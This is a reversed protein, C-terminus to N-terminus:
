SRVHTLRGHKLSFAISASYNPCFVSYPLRTDKARRADLPSAGSCIERNLKPLFAFNRDAHEKDTKAAYVGGGFSLYFPLKRLKRQLLATREFEVLTYWAM